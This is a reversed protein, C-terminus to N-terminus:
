KAANAAVHKDSRQQIKAHIRVLEFRFELLQWNCSIVEMHSSLLLAADGAYFEINMEFMVVVRMGIRVAVIMLMVMLVSVVVSMRVRVMVGM